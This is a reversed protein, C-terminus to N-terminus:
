QMSFPSIVKSDEAGQMLPAGPGKGQDEDKPEPASATGAAKRGKRGTAKTIDEPAEMSAGSAAMAEIGAEMEADEQQQRALNVAERAIHDIRKESEKLRDRFGETLRLYEADGIKMGHWLQHVRFLLQDFDVLLNLLLKARPYQIEATGTFPKTFEAVKPNGFQLELRAIEKSLDEQLPKIIEDYVVRETQQVKEEAVSLKRLNIGIKYIAASTFNYHRLLSQADASYLTVDQKEASVSYGLNSAKRLRPIDSRKRPM